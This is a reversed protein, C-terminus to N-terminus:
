TRLGLYFSLSFSLLLAGSDWFLRHFTQKKIILPPGRVIGRPTAIFFPFKSWIQACHWFKKYPRLAALRQCTTNCIRESRKWPSLSADPRTLNWQIISAGAVWTPGLIIRWLICLRKNQQWKNGCQGEAIYLQLVLPSSPLFLSKSLLHEQLTHRCCGHKSSFVM